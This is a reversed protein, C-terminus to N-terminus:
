ARPSAVLLLAETMRGREVAGDLLGVIERFERSARALEEVLRKEGRVGRSLADGVISPAERHVELSLGAVHSALESGVGSWTAGLMALALLPRAFQDRALRWGAESVKYLLYNLAAAYFLAKARSSGLDLYAVHSEPVLPERTSLASASFGRQARYVTYWSGPELPEVRQQVAERSLAAIRPDGASEAAEELLRKLSGTDRCLLVRLTYTLTFPHVGARYILGWARCGRSELSSRPLRAPRAGDLEVVCYGGSCALRRVALGARGGGWRGGSFLGRVYVGQPAARVAGLM